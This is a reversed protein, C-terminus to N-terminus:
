NTSISALLGGTPVMMFAIPLLVLYWCDLFALGRVDITLSQLWFSCCGTTVSRYQINPIPIM